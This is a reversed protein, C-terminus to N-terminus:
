KFEFKFHMPQTSLGCVLLLNWATSLWVCVVPEVGAFGPHGSVGRTCLVNTVHTSVVCMLLCSVGSKGLPKRDDAFLFLRQVTEVIVRLRSKKESYICRRATFACQM